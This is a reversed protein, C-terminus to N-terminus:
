CKWTSGEIFAKRSTGVCSRWGGSEFYSVAGCGETSDCKLMCEKLSKGTMSFVDNSVGNANRCVGEGQFEYQNGVSVQSTQKTSGIFQCVLYLLVITRMKVLRDEVFQLNILPLLGGVKKFSGM